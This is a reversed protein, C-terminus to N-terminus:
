PTQVEELVLENYANYVAQFTVIDSEVSIGGEDEIKTKASYIVGPILGEFVGDAEWTKWSVNTGSGEGIVYKVIYNGYKGVYTQKNTLELKYTRAVTIKASSTAATDGKDNKCWVYVTAEGSNNSLEFKSYKKYDVWDSDQPAINKESIYMKTTNVAELTIIVERNKTTNAGGNILLSDIQPDLAAGVKAVENTTEDTVDKRNLTTYNDKTITVEVYIYNNIM